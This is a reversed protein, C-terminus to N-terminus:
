EATRHLRLAILAIAIGALDATLDFIDGDRGPIFYYQIVESLAAHVAFVAAWLWKRGTLRGLLYVPLGFMAAHIVKDVYIPEPVGVASGPAYLGVLHVVLVVALVWWLVRRSGADLSETPTVPAGPSLDVQEPQEPHQEAM